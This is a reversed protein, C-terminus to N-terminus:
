KEMAEAVGALRFKEFKAAASRKQEKALHVYRMTMQIRTQRLIASLTPLDSFRRSWKTYTQHAISSKGPLIDVCADSLFGANLIAALEDLPKFSSSRRFAPRVTQPTVIM